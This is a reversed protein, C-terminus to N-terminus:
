RRLGWLLYILLLEYFIQLFPACSLIAWHVRSKIVKDLNTQVMLVIIPNLQFIFLNNLDLVDTLFVFLFAVLSFSIGLTHWSKRSLDKVETYM